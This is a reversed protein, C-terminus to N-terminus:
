LFFIHCFDNLLLTFIAMKQKLPNFTLVHVQHDSFLEPKILNPEYPLFVLQRFAFCPKECQGQLWICIKVFRNLKLNYFFFLRFTHGSLSFAGHYYVDHERTEHWIRRQRLFKARCILGIIKKILKLLTHFICIDDRLFHVRTTYLKGQKLFILSIVSHNNISQKNYIHTCTM